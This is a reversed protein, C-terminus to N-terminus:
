EPLGGDTTSPPVTPGSPEIPGRPPTQMPATESTPAPPPAPRPAHPSGKIGCAVLALTVCTAACLRILSTRM